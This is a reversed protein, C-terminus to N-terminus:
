SSDWSAALCCRTSISDTGLAAPADPLQLPGDGAQAGYIQPGDLLILPDVFSVGVEGVLSVIDLPGLPLQLLDDRVDGPLHLGDEGPTWVM